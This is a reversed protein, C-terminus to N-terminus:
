LKDNEQNISIIVKGKAQGAGLYALAEPVERLPYTKDIVSMVKGAEALQNIFKLDENDPKHILLGLKKHTAKQLVPGALAFQAIRASTGGIIVYRGNASLARLCKSISRNAVVDLILDYTQDIETFDQAQYDITHDVGISQLMGLKGAGDVGTVEAGFSKAMQVAFTGVGGGAGNILVKQGALNLSQQRLGQLALVAAQPIAAAQEFTLQASKLTVATEPVCVYEAFGGWGCGSLDGFVEDGVHFYQAASGRAEVLGAIDAGLIQYKPKTLGGIRNLYPKGRLLDWDWSNVSAAQIKILVENPKPTPKRIETLKMVEPLGYKHYMMAKM